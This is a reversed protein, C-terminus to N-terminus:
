QQLEERWAPNIYYREVGNENRCKLRNTGCLVRIAQSTETKHRNLFPDAMYLPKITFPNSIYDGSKIITSISDMVDDSSIQTKEHVMRVCDLSLMTIEIANQVYKKAIRNSHGIDCFQLLYSMRSFYSRAKSTSYAYVGKRKKSETITWTMFDEAMQQADDAFLVRDDSKEVSNAEHFINQIENSVTVMETKFNIFPSTRNKIFIFRSFLGDDGKEDNTRRIFEEIIDNQTNCIMSVCFKDCEKHGGSKTSYSLTETGDWGELHIKKLMEYGKKNYMKSLSSFENEFILHGEPSSRVIDILAEPTSNQSRIIRRVPDKLEIELQSMQLALESARKDDNESVAKDLQSKIMKLKPTLVKKKLEMESQQRNFKETNEKEIAKLCSLAISAQFTKLSGPDDAIMLYLNPSQTWMSNMRNPQITVKNGILTSLSTLMLLLISEKPVGSCENASLIFSKLKSPCWEDKFETVKKENVFPKIPEFEVNTSINKSFIPLDMREDPKKYRNHTISNDICFKACNLEESNTYFGKSRDTFYRNDHNTTKDWILMHYVLEDMSYIGKAALQAYYTTARDHRHSGPSLIQSKDIKEGALLKEIVIDRNDGLEPMESVDTDPGFTEQTWVYRKKTDPHISPPIVLQRNSYFFEVIVKDKKKIQRVPTSYTMPQRYLRAEGKAGKRAYPSKPINSDIIKYEDETAHDIDVVCIKNARGVPIGIGTANNWEWGYVETETPLNDCFHSWGKVLPIKGNVPIVVKGCDIYKMALDKLSSM